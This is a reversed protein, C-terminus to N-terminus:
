EKFQRANTEHPLWLVCLQLSRSVSILKKIAIDVEEVILVKM